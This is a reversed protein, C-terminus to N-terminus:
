GHMCIRKFLKSIAITFIKKTAVNYRSVFTNGTTKPFTGPYDM